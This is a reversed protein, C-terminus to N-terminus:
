IRLCVWCNGCNDQDGITSISNNCQPWKSRADFNDPLTDYDIKPPDDDFDPELPDDPDPGITGCLHRVDEEKKGPFNQGAKWTTGLSNIHDIFEKSLADYDIFMPDSDKHSLACATLAIIVLVASLMRRNKLTEATSQLYGFFGQM